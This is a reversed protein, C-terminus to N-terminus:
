EMILGKTVAVMQPHETKAKYLEAISDHDDCGDDWQAFQEDMVADISDIRNRERIRYGKKTWGELGVASHKKDKLKKGKEIEEVSLECHKRFNSYDEDDWWVAQIVEPPMEDIMPIHRVEPETQAFRISTQNSQLSDHDSEDDDDVEYDLYEQNNDDKKNDDHHDDDYYEQSITSRFSDQRHNIYDICTM